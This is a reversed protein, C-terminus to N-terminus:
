EEEGEEWAKVDLTISITKLSMEENRGPLKGGYSIHVAGGPVAKRFDAFHRRVKEKLRILDLEDGRTFAELLMAGETHGDEFRYGTESYEGTVYPYKPEGDPRYVMYSYIIGLAEMEENFVELIKEEM